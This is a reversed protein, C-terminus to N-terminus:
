VEHVRSGFGNAMGLGVVLAQCAVCGDLAKVERDRWWSFSFMTKWLTSGEIRVSRGLVKEREGGVDLPAVGLAWPNWEEPCEVWTPLALLWPGLEGLCMVCGSGIEEEAAIIL